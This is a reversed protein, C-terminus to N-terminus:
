LSCSYIRYRHPTNSMPYTRRVLPFHGQRSIGGSRLPGGSRLAFSGAANPAAKSVNAPASSPPPLLTPPPPPPHISSNPPLAYDYSRIADLLQSNLLETKERDSERLSKEMNDVLTSIHALQDLEGVRARNAASANPYGLAIKRQLILHRYMGVWQFMMREYQVQQQFALPELRAQIAGM